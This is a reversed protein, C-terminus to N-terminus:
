TANDISIKLAKLLNNIGHIRDTEPFLDVYQIRDLTRTADIEIPPIECESLRVPIIFISGPAYERYIEIAHQIEPYIGSKNGAQSEASLCCILAYSDKIAKKIEFKWDQGPVIHKDWWVAHGNSILENRLREAGQTNKHSYSLFLQKKVSGKSKVKSNKSPPEISFLPTVYQKIRNMVDDFVLKNFKLFGKTYIVIVKVDSLLEYESYPIEFDGPFNAFLIPYEEGVLVQEKAVTKTQGSVLICLSANLLFPDSSKIMRSQWSIFEVKTFPLLTMWLDPLTDDNDIKAKNSLYPAANWVNELIKELIKENLSEYLLEKVSSESFAKLLENYSFAIIAADTECRLTATRKRGLAFAIEGTLEGPSAIFDPTDEQMKLKSEKPKIIGVKGKLILFMTEGEDNYECLIEGNKREILNGAHIFEPGFQINLFLDYLFSDKSQPRIKKVALTRLTNTASSDNTNIELLRRARYIVELFDKQNLANLMLARDSEYKIQEWVSEFLDKVSLLLVMQLGFNKIEASQMNHFYVQEDISHRIIDCFDETVLVYASGGLVLLNGAFNIGQGVLQERGDAGDTIEAMGNCGTIRLAVGSNKAWIRLDIILEVALRLESDVPFALHGGDGGSAWILGKGKAKDLITKIIRNISVVNNIQLNHNPETSHGVIDCSIFIYQDPM